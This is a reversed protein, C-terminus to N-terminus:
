KPSLGAPPNEKHTFRVAVLIAVILLAIGAPIKWSQLSRVPIGNVPPAVNTRKNTNRIAGPASANGLAAGCSQCSSAQPYNRQGCLPCTREGAPPPSGSSSSSEEQRLQGQVSAPSWDIVTGCNSCFKESPAIEGGCSRCVLKPIM